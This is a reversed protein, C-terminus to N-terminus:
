ERMKKFQDFRLKKRRLYLKPRGNYMIESLKLADLTSLTLRSFDGSSSVFLGGGVIGISNLEKKLEELFKRNGSTFTAQIVLTPRVRDHNIYGVWVNGDGDFYGRIFDPLMLSPIKPFTMRRTKGPTMGLGILDECMKKSGIQLRYRLSENKKVKRESIKHNSELVRRMSFLLDKDCIHFGFYYSGRPNIDFTGDAYFFGLVYAM